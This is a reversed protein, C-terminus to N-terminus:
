PTIRQIHANLYEEIQLFRLVPSKLEETKRGAYTRLELLRDQFQQNIVAEIEINFKQRINTRITEVFLIQNEKSNDRATKVVPSWLMYHRNYDPFYKTAYEIDRTFKETLKVVTNPQRNRVYRLGSTLHVAVECVYLKRETLNIGIVDTEGQVDPTQLNLQIFDCMKITRLYAATIEEGINM